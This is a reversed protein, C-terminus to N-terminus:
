NHGSHPVQILSFRQLSCSSFGEVSGQLDSLQIGGTLVGDSLTHVSALDVLPHTLHCPSNGELLFKRWESWSSQEQAICSWLSIVLLQTDKSMVLLKWYFYYTKICMQTINWMQTVVRLEDALNSAWIQMVQILLCVCVCIYIYVMHIGCKSAINWFFFYLWIERKECM